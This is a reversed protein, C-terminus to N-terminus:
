AQVLPGPNKMYRNKIADATWYALAGVPGTPNYSSNHPFVNAGIVFLNHCDWSQLYKNVASNKPNTGMITGGTNHTSQYPVATWPETRAVAPNMTTPNMSKAITNIVDAAHRGTKHENEKYDFTMRMLPLGFANRYTPDLDYYNYRNAMVAGAASITMATQYWKATAAKWGKGWSPTGRPVPRYGIPLATNFGGNVNFGGVYGFKSRDFAWNTSNFDDMTANSGGANMFPNFHRGEFFLTASAGTQYCYNKGIVGQGSVPDYPRGIGSLLMLHVNNIAYATLMVMTAPQEFEEGTNTNIYTVGTVRKGSADKLVKTVWAHERLEFNPNRMAIPIVTMHPSGKANAECGFRQCYGCYQCAGFSSGDPNTYARSANASPRPFPHYGNNKAAESFLQSALIPTLPPLAYDRARPAEFPNGGAQLTGRINGAKGSVAATYEFKDYYPELEAYSIGWDQITM